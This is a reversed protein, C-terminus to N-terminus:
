LIDLHPHKIHTLPSLNNNKKHSNHSIYVIFVDGAALPPKNRAQPFFSMIHTTKKNQKKFESKWENGKQTQMHKM